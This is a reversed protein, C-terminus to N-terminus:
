PSPHEPDENRRSSGVEWKRCPQQQHCFSQKGPTRSTIYIGYWHYSVYSTSAVQFCPAACHPCRSSVDRFGQCALYNDTPTTHYTCCIYSYNLCFKVGSNDSSTSSLPGFELNINLMPSPLMTAYCSVWPLLRANTRYRHSVTDMQRMWNTEYAASM